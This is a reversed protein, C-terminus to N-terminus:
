YWCSPQECSTSQARIAAVVSSIVKCCCFTGRDLLLCRCGCCIRPMQQWLLLLCHSELFFTFRLRVLGQVVWHTCSTRSRLGSSHGADVGGAPRLRCADFPVALFVSLVASTIREISNGPSSSPLAVYLSLSEMLVM